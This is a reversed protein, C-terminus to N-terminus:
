RTTFFGQPDVKMMENTVKNYVRHSGTHGPEEELLVELVSM